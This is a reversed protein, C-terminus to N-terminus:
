DRASEKICKATSAWTEWAARYMLQLTEIHKKM